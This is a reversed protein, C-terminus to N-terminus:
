SPRVFAAYTIKAHPARKKIEEVLEDSYKSMDKVIRIWGRRDNNADELYGFSFNGNNTFIKNKRGIMKIKNVDQWSAFIKKWLGNFRIGEDNIEIYTSKLQMYAIVSIGIGIFFFICILILDSVPPKRRNLFSLYILLLGAWVIFLLKVQAAGSHYDYRKQM